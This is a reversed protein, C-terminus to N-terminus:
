AQFAGSVAVWPSDVMLFIPTPPRTRLCPGFGPFLGPKNRSHFSTVGSELPQLPGHSPDPTTEPLVDKRGGLEKQPVWLGTAGSSLLQLGMGLPDRYGQPAVGHGWSGSVTPARLLRLEPRGRVPPARQAPVGRPGSWRLVRGGLNESKVLLPRLFAPIPVGVTKGPLFAPCRPIQSVGAGRPNGRCRVRAEGAADGVRSLPVWPAAGWNGSNGGGPVGTGQATCGWRWLERRAAASGASTGLGRGLGPSGGGWGRGWRTIPQATAPWDSHNSPRDTVGSLSAPVSVEDRFPGCSEPTRPNPSASQSGCVGVAVGRAAFEGQQTDGAQPRAAVRGRLESLIKRDWGTCGAGPGGAAM